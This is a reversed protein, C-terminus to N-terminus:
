SFWFLFHALEGCEGFVVIVEVGDGCGMDIDGAKLKAILIYHCAAGAAIHGGAFQPKLFILRHIDQVIIGVIMKALDIAGQCYHLHLRFQPIILASYYIISFYNYLLDDAFHQFIKIIPQLHDQEVPILIPM